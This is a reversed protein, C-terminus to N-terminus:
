PSALNLSEVEDTANFYACDSGGFVWATDGVLAAGHGHRATRLDPLRTWSDTEPDYEQVAGTVTETGDDGGAIAIPKGNWVIASLGGAGVPLPALREWRRKQPDYREATNLALNVWGRGGLVYLKGDVVAAAVHERESPMDPLRSWRETEFDYEFAGSRPHSNIAGGAVILRDDIVGVAAAARPEPLDPLRSWRDSRPAYRYFRKGTNEDVSEGYGGLAYLDGRYAALDLHNLPEPLPALEEYRGSRPDFRTLDDSPTLLPRDGEVNRVDTTGGVLYIYDGITIARPEDREYALSPGEVWPSALNTAAECEDLDVGAVDKLDKELGSETLAITPLAVLVVVVLAIPLLIWGRM